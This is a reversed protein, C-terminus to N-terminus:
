QSGKQLCPYTSHYNYEWILNSVYSEYLFDTLSLTGFQSDNINMVCIVSWCRSLLNMLVQTVSNTFLQSACLGKSPPSLNRFFYFIVTWPNMSTAWCNGFNVTPAPVRVVLYGTLLVFQFHSTNMNLVFLVTIQPVNRLLLSKLMM